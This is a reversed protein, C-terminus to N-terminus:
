PVDDKVIGKLPSRKAREIAHVEANFASVENGDDSRATRAFCREHVDYPEHCRGGRAVHFDIADRRAREVGVCKGRRSVLLEPENELM